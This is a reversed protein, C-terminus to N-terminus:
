PRAGKDMFLKITQPSYKKKMMVGVLSEGTKTKYNLDAGKLVLADILKDSYPADFYDLKNDIITDSIISPPVKSLSQVLTILNNLIYENSLERGYIDIALAAFPTTLEQSKYFKYLATGDGDACNYPQKFTVISSNYSNKLGERADVVDSLVGYDNYISPVEINPDAGQSVLSNVGALDRRRLANYIASFGFCDPRNLAGKGYRGAVAQMGREGAGYRMLYYSPTMPFRMETYSAPIAVLIKRGTGITTTIKFQQIRRYALFVSHDYDTLKLYTNITPTFMTDGDRFATAPCRSMAEKSASIIDGKQFLGNELYGMITQIESDSNKCFASFAQSNTSQAFTVDVFCAYTAATVAILHSLKYM